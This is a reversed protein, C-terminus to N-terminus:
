HVRSFYRLGDIGLELREAKGSGGCIPMLGLYGSKWQDGNPPTKPGGALRELMELTARSLLVFVQGNSPELEWGLAEVQMGNLTLAGVGDSSLSLVYNDSGAQMQYKGEIDSLNCTRSCGVSMLAILATLLYQLSKMTPRGSSPKGVLNDMHGM